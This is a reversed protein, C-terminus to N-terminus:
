DRAAAIRRAAGASARRALALVGLSMWFVICAKRVLGLTVGTAAAFGLNRLILETGGEYVGITAPVFGFAFNIVKTLSEIVFPAALAPDHGLMRLALYVELVSSAHTLLNLTVLIFFAGRRRRYFNYVNAETRRVHQRRKALARRKFGLRILLDVVFTAPMVRLTFALAAGALAALAAAAIFTIARRAAGPLDYEFLLLCAGGLVFLAVSLNYVLNDIVLAQVGSRLPVRKRLLAAKTAEGLLPGTFTIFTVAEGGLRAAFAQGFTFSRRHEPAVARSMSLTRLVHRVGTIGVLVFFGALGIQALADAIARLGVHRVVYILLAVGCGLAVLQLYFFTRKSTAAGSGGSAKDEGAALPTSHHGADPEYARNPPHRSQTAGPSNQGPGSTM